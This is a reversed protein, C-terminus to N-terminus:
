HHIPIITKTWRFENGQLVGVRYDGSPLNETVFDVWLGPVKTKQQFVLNRFSTRSRRGPLWYGKETGSQLYLFAREDLTKNEILINERRFIGTADREEFFGKSITLIITSDVIGTDWQKALFSESKQCVGLLEAQAYPDKINQNFSKRHNLFVRHNNWNIGDAELWEKRFVIDENYVFYCLGNFFIGCAIFLGALYKRNNRGTYRLLVLYAWCLLFPSYHQYRPALVHEVGSWSRSVAVLAATISLFLLNALLLRDFFTSRAAVEASFGIRPVLYLVLILILTIGCLAAYNFNYFAVKTVSGFFAFFSVVLRVPDSLSKVSDSNQGNQFGWFYIFATIGLVVLWQIVGKWNREWILFLIGILFGFIGNGHTFTAIVVVPLAWLYRRTALLFSLLVFWTVIVSQQLISISWTVNDFYQPQFLIWSVPIFMWAPQGGDKFARWFFVLVSVWLLNGVLILTRWHIFGELWYDLLTILRPIIIRHENHQQILLAFKESFSDADKLWLVTKLLHFDDSYFLAGSNFFAYLLYIVCPSIISVTLVSQRRFKVM